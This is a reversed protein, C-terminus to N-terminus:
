RNEDCKSHIRLAIKEFVFNPTPGLTM